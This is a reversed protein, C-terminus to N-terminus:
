DDGEGSNPQFPLFYEAIGSPISVQTSSFEAVPLRIVSATPAAPPYAQAQVPTAAQSSAATPQAM